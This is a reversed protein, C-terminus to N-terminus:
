ICTMTQDAGTARRCSMTAVFWGRRHVADGIVLVLAVACAAPGIPRTVQMEEVPTSLRRPWKRRQFALGRLPRPAATHALYRSGMMEQVEEARSPANAPMAGDRDVFVSEGDEPGKLLVGFSPAVPGGGMSRHRRM